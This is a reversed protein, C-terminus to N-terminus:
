ESALSLAKGSNRLLRLPQNPDYSFGEPKREPSHRAQPQAPVEDPHVVEIAAFRAFGSRDFTLIATLGHVQMAAVMIRTTASLDSGCQPNARLSKQAAEKQARQRDDM